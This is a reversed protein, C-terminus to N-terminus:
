KKEVLWIQDVDKIKVVRNGIYISSEKGDSKYLCGSYIQSRYNVVVQVPSLVGNCPYEKDFDDYTKEVLKFKNKIKNKFHKIILSAESDEIKKLLMNKAKRYNKENICYMFEEAEPTAFAYRLNELIEEVNREKGNTM